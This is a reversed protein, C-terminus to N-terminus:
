ADRDNMKLDIERWPLLDNWLQSLLLTMNLCLPKAKQWNTKRNSCSIFVIFLQHVVPVETAKGAILLLKLLIEAGTFDNEIREWHNFLLILPGASVTVCNTNMCLSLLAAQICRLMSFVQLKALSFTESCWQAQEQANRCSDHETHKTGYFRNKNDKRRIMIGCRGERM